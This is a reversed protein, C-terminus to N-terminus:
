YQLYYMDVFAIYTVTVKKIKKNNIWIDRM